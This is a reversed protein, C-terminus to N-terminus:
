VPEGVAIWALAQAAVASSALVRITFGDATPITGWEFPTGAHGTTDQVVVVPAAAFPEAFMVTGVSEWSGSGSVALTNATGAVVRGELATIRTEHDAAAADVRVLETEVAEALNQGLAAGDPADSMDQYPLGYTSTAGM